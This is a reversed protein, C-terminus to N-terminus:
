NLKYWWEGNQSIYEQYEDSEVLVDLYYDKDNNWISDCYNEYKIDRSNNLINNKNSIINIFLMVGLLIIINYKM